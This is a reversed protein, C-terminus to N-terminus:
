HNKYPRRYPNSRIFGFSVLGSVLLAIISPEPIASISVSDIYGSYVTTQPNGTIGFIGRRFDFAANGSQPTGSVIDSYRISSLDFLSNITVSPAFILNFNFVDSINNIFSNYYFNVATSGTYFGTEYQYTSIMSYNIESENHSVSDFQFERVSFPYIGFSGGPLRNNPVSTDIVVYGSFQDGHQLGLFDTANNFLAVGGYDTGSFDIRIITANASLACTIFGILASLRLITIKM